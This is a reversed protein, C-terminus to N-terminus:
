RGRWRRRRGGGGFNPPAVASRAPRRRSPMRSPAGRDLWRKALTAFLDLAVPAAGVYLSYLAPRRWVSVPGRASPMPVRELRQTLAHGPTAAAARPAPMVMGIAGVPCSELCLGCGTCLDQDVFAVGDKMSLAERPCEGVCAGCSTCKTEDIFIM